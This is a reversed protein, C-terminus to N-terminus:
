KKIKTFGIEQKSRNRRLEKLINREADSILYKEVHGNVTLNEWADFINFPDKIREQILNYKERLENYYTNRDVIKEDVEILGIEKLANDMYSAEIVEAPLIYVHYEWMKKLDVNPNIVACINGNEDKMLSYLQPPTEYRIGIGCKAEKKDLIENIVKDFKVAKDYSIM